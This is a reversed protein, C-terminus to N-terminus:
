YKKIKVSKKVFIVYSEQQKNTLWKMKKNKFNIIKMEHERLSEFINKMCDKGRYVEHKNEIDKFSSKTSM